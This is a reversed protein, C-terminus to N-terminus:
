VIENDINILFRFFERDYGSPTFAKLPLEQFKPIAREFFKARALFSPPVEQLSDPFVLDKNIRQLTEKALIYTNFGQCGLWTDDTLPYAGISLPCGKCTKAPKFNYIECFPCEKVDFFKKGQPNWYKEVLAKAAEIAKEKFEKM